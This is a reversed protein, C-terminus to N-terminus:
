LLRNIESLFHQYQTELRERLDIGDPTREPNNKVSVIWALTHHVDRIAQRLSLNHGFTGAAREVQSLREVLEDFNRNPGYGGIEEDLEGVLERLALLQSRNDVPTNPEQAVGSAVRWSSTRSFDRQDEEDRRGSGWLVFAGVLLVGFVCVAAVKGYILGILGSLVVGGVTLAINKKDVASM